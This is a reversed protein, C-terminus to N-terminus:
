QVSMQFDDISYDLKEDVAEVYLLFEEIEKAPVSYTGKLETWEGSKVEIEEAVRDWDQEEGSYTRQITMNMLKTEGSDQYAWVSFEYTNGPEVIENFPKAIGHWNSTRGAVKFSYDGSFAVKDNIEVSVGSGRARFGDAKEDDFDILLKDPGGKIPAVEVTEEAANESKDIEEQKREVEKVSSLSAGLNLNQSWEGQAWEDTISWIEVNNNSLEVRYEDIVPKFGSLTTKLRFYQASDLNLPYNQDGDRLSIETSDVIKQQDNSLEIVVQATDDDSLISQATLSELVAGDNIQNWETTHTGKVDDFSHTDMVSDNIEKQTLIYPFVRMEDIIGKLPNHSPFYDSDSDKGIVPQSLEGSSSASIDTSTLLEGNVYINMPVEVNFGGTVTIHYWNDAEFDYQAEMQFDADTEDEYQWMINNSSANVFFYIPDKTADFLAYPGWNKSDAEPKFWFALSFAGNKPIVSLEKGDTSQYRPDIINLNGNGQMRLGKGAKADVFSVEGDAEITINSPSLNEYDEEFNIWLSPQLLNLSGPVEITETELDGASINYEGSRNFEYSFKVTKNERPKLTVTKTKVAQDNILLEVERKETENGVNQATVSIDYIKNNIKEVNLSKFSSMTSAFSNLAAKVAYYSPKANYEDDFMLGYGTGAFTYPIWSHKDSIGWTQVAKVAPQALAAKMVRTFIDAQYMFSEMSKETLRVDLETIYIDLGLDAFRQLNKVFSEDDFSYRQSLHMQFGIGDIPIDREIFDKAMEYIADSKANVTAISYDNYILKADPDTERAKIFAQEIYDEGLVNYWISKRYSGDGMFAENVVDWIDIQGKYHGAVTTVHDNLIQNLEEESWSTGTLWSPTQNHWILAHGHVDMNNLEAFAVHKDAAKFNYVGKEPQLSYMKMQNEPTLINFEKRAIAMYQESDSIEWFNNVSAFGFKINSKEALEKISADYNLLNSSQASISLSMSLIITLIILTSFLIINNKTKM